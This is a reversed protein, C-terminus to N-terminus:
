SCGGCDLVVVLADDRRSAHKKLIWDALEQPAATTSLSDAFSSHIGDTALVLRDNVAVPEISPRLVPLSDGISGGKVLLTKVRGAPRPEKSLLIATISGIGVWTLTKRPWDFRVVGIAAGRTRRLRSHCLRLLAEPREAAAALLTGKALAAIRAAEAGHGVADIVAALSGGDFDQQLWADGSQSEGGYTLAAVGCTLAATM